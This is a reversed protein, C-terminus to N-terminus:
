DDLYGRTSFYSTLSKTLPEDVKKRYLYDHFEKVSHPRNMLWELARARLKGDASIKKFRKIDAASLEIGNKVKYKVVEDLSLSFSYKDDVFISVREPQKLQQKLSTIKMKLGPSNIHEVHKHVM